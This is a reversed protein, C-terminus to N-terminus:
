FLALRYGKHAIIHGRLVLGVWFECEGKSVHLTVKWIVNRDLITSIYSLSKWVSSQLFLFIDYQTQSVYAYLRRICVDASFCQQSM